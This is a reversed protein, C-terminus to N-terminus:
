CVSHLNWLAWQEARPMEKEMVELLVATVLSAQQDTLPAYPIEIFIVSLYVSNILQFFVYHQCKKIFLELAKPPSRMMLKYITNQSCFLHYLVKYLSSVFKNCLGELHYNFNRHVNIISVTSHSVERSTLCIQQM